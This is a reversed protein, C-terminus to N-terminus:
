SVVINSHSHFCIVTLFYKLMNLHLDPVNGEMLYLNKVMLECFGTPRCTYYIPYM